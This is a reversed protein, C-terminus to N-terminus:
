GDGETPDEGAEFADFRRNLEDQYDGVKDEINEAAEYSKGLASGAGEQTTESGGEGPTAYIFGEEEPEECGALGLALTLPVVSRRM